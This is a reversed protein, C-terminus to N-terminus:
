QYILHRNFDLPHPSFETVLPWHNTALFVEVRAPEDHDDAAVKKGALEEEIARKVRRYDDQLEIRERLKRWSPHKAEAQNMVREYAIHGEERTNGGVFEGEANSFHVDKVGLAKAADAVHDRPKGTDDFIVVDFSGDPKPEITRNNIGHASLAQRIVAESKGQVHFEFLSHHGGERAEVVLVSKQDTLNGKIAGAYRAQEFTMKTSRTMVSNEAGDTWDGLVSSTTAQPDFLKDIESSVQRFDKQISSQLNRIAEPLQMSEAVSPSVFQLTEHAPQANQRPAAQAQGIVAGPIALAIALAIIPFRSCRM